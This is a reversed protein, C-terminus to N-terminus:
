FLQETEKAKAGTKGFEPATIEFGKKRLDLREYSRQTEVISHGAMRAVEVVPTGKLLHDEIFTSRLSYLTYPHPSYRHGSLKGSLAKRIERWTESFSSRHYARWGDPSGSRPFPNGFVETEKTPLPLNFRECQELVFEKWRRLERAQNAPIERPAKTKSRITSVYAVEWEQREDSSDIRGEDVLEIQKWKMKIVEEPSMGTNKSFLLYHWILNRWYWYRQNVHTKMENRWEGRVYDIIIKWDNSHIAPNKLRDAETVKGKPYFGRELAVRPNVLGNKLLYATVWYKIHKVEQSRQLATTSARYILYNDWTTSVIDTTFVVGEKELYPQIHNRFINARNKATDKDILGCAAREFEANLMMEIAHSISQKSQTKAKKLVTHKYNRRKAEGAIFSSPESQLQFAIDLSGEIAEDLTVANPIQRLLYNKKEPQWQRYFWKGASSGSGYLVVTGRGNLVEQKQLIKPM